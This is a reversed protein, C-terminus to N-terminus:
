FSRVGIFEVDEHRGAPHVPLDMDMDDDDSFITASDSRADEAYYCGIPSGPPSPSGRMTEDDDDDLMVVDDDAPIVVPAPAAVRAARAVPARLVDREMVMVEDGDGDEVVVVEGARPHRARFCVKEFAQRGLNREVWARDVQVGDMTKLWNILHRYLKKAMTPPVANGIQKKADSYSGFFYHEDPFGQIRAYERITFDRTGSWHYSQGGSCTVVNATKRDADYPQKNKPRRSVETLNHQRIGDRLNSGVAELLTTFPRAGAVFHTDKPFAPLSEGPACGIIIVRRRHQCLGWNRFHVVKWRVSYGYSTFAGILTDFQPRFREHLIGYTQEITFIRPRVKHVVHGCAFLAAENIEDNKGPITHAPSYVQCPPSLHLFDVRHSNEENTYFDFIDTEYTAAEPFNRRYTEACKNWHDIGFIIKAGAQQMGRSAGGAGCFADGASYINQSARNPRAGANSGSSKNRSQDVLCDEEEDDELEITPTTQKGDAAVDGGPIKGGRWNFLNVEDPISLGEDANEATIRRLVWEKIKDKKEPSLVMIYQWRCVLPGNMETWEKGAPNGNVDWYTDGSNNHIPYTDNTVKLERVRLVQEPLIDRMSQRNWDHNNTPDYHLLTSILVVENVQRPLLGRLNRTRTYHYGRLKTGDATEIVAAIHFFDARFPGIPERLEVCMGEHLAEFKNGLEVYTAQLESETGYDVIPSPDLEGIGAIVPEEVPEDTLDVFPMAAQLREVDVEDDEEDEGDEIIIHPQRRNAEIINQYRLAAQYQADNNPQDSLDIVEMREQVNNVGPRRRQNQRNDQQGNLAQHQHGQSAQVIPKEDEDDSLTILETNAPRNPAPRSLPNLRRSPGQKRTIHKPM